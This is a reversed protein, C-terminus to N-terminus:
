NITTKVQFILQDSTTKSVGDFVDRSEMLPTGDANFCGCETIDYGNGQLTNLTFRSVCTLANLDVSPYGNDFLSLTNASSYLKIDDLNLVDKGWTTATATAGFDLSTYSAATVFATGVMSANSSRLNTLLNWGVVLDTKNKSWYYYNNADVGYKIVLSSVDQLLDLTAQDNIYIWLSLIKDTFDSSTLSKSIAVSTSATGVKMISISDSSTKYYATSATCTTGTVATWSTAVSGDDLTAYNIIPVPSSLDSDVVTVTATGIGVKFQSVPLLSSSINYARDIIIKKGGTTIIGGTTM